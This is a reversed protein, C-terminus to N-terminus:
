TEVAEALYRYISAISIGTVKSIQVAAGKMRFFGNEMLESVFALKDAKQMRKGPTKYRNWVESIYERMFADVEVGIHRFSNDTPELEMTEPGLMQDLVEKVTVRDTEKEDICLFAIVDGKKDRILFVSNKQGANEGGAESFSCIYDHKKLETSNLIDALLERETGSEKSNKTLSRDEVTWEQKLDEADVLSVSYREGLADKLFKALATYQFLDNEM